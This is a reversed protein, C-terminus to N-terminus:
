FTAIKETFIQLFCTIKDYYRYYFYFILTPGTNDSAGFKKMDVDPKPVIESTTWAPKAYEFLGERGGDRGFGICIGIFVYKNFM